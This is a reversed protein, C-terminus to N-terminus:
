GSTHTYMVSCFSYNAKWLSVNTSFSIIQWTNNYLSPIGFDCLSVQRRQESLLCSPPMSAMGLFLTCFNLKELIFTFRALVFDPYIETKKRSIFSCFIYVFCVFLNRRIWLLTINQPEFVRWTTLFVIDLKFHLFLSFFLVYVEALIFYILYFINGRYYIYVILSFFVFRLFYLTFSKMMPIIQTLLLDTSSYVLLIFLFMYTHRQLGWVRSKFILEGLLEM